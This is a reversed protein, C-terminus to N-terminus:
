SFTFFLRRFLRQFSNSTCEIECGFPVFLVRCCINRYIYSFYFLFFSFNFSRHWQFVLLPFVPSLADISISTFRSRPHLDSPKPPQEPNLRTRASVSQPRGSCDGSFIEMTKWRAWRGLRRQSSPRPRPPPQRYPPGGASDAIRCRRSRRSYPPEVPTDPGHRPLPLPLPLANAVSSVATKGRHSIPDQPTYVRNSISAM